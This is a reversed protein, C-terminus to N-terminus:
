GAMRDGRGLGHSTRPQTGAGPLRLTRTARTTGSAAAHEDATVQLWARTKAAVRDGSADDLVILTTGRDDAFTDFPDAFPDRQKAGQMVPVLDSADAALAPRGSADRFAEAIRRVRPRRAGYRGVGAAPRRGARHGPGERSQRLHRRLALLRHGRCGHCRRGAVAPGGPRSGGPLARRAARHGGGPSRRHPHRGGDHQSRGGEAVPPRDTVIVRAGRRSAEAITNSVDADYTLGTLVIVLDLAGVWAPLVHAPWAVFPVPCHPELVARILRSEPGSAIVARPRYRDGLDALGTLDTQGTEIRVRAGAEALRRLSPVRELVATDELLSDDFDAM